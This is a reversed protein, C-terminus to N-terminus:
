LPFKTISPKSQRPPAPPKPSDIKLLFQRRCIILEIVDGSMKTEIFHHKRKDKNEDLWKQAQSRLIDLHDGIRDGKEVASVAYFEVTEFWDKNTTGDKFGHRYMLTNSVAFLIALSIGILITIM